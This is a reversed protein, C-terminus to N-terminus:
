AGKEKDSPVAVAKGDQGALELGGKDVEDVVLRIPRGGCNKVIVDNREAMLQALRKQVLATLKFRGGFKGALRHLRQENV